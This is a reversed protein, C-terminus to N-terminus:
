TWLGGRAQYCGTKKLHLLMNPCHNILNSTESGPCLVKDVARQPALVVAESVMEGFPHHLVARM